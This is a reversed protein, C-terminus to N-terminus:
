SAYTVEVTSMVRPRGHFKRKKSAYYSQVESDSLPHLEAPIPGWDRHWLVIFGRDNPRDPPHMFRRHTGDDAVYEFPEGPRRVEGHVNASDGYTRGDLVAVLVRLVGGGLNEDFASASEHGSRNAAYALETRLYRDAMRQAPAQAFLPADILEQRVKRWPQQTAMLARLHQEFKRTLRRSYRDLLGKDVRQLAGARVGVVIKEFLRARDRSNVQSGSRQLHALLISAQARSMTRAQALILDRFHRKLSRLVIRAEAHILQLQLASFPADPAGLLDALRLKQALQRQAQTLLGRLREAGAREAAIRVQHQQRALLRVNEVM